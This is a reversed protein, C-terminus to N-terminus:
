ALESASLRAHSAARFCHALFVAVRRKDPRASKERFAVVLLVLPASEDPETLLQSDGVPALAPPAQFSTGKHAGAPPAPHRRKPYTATAQAHFLFAPEWLCEIARLAKGVADGPGAERGAIKVEYRKARAM